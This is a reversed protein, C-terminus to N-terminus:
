PRGGSEVELAGRIEALAIWQHTNTLFTERGTIILSIAKLSITDARVRIAKVLRM